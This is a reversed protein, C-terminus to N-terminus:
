PRRAKTTKPNARPRLAQHLMTVIRERLKSVDRDTLEAQLALYDRLRIKFHESVLAAVLMVYSNNIHWALLPVDVDRNVVGAAIGSRILAALRDAAPKEVESSLQMAFSELGVSAVGLYLKVYEPHHQAFAVGEKFIHEVVRFVDWSPDVGGWVAVRSRELGDRCVHLYIADKSEFYNYISGKAVGCRKALDAVDTQSYGREAFALAAERLVRERKDPAINNLTQKAM